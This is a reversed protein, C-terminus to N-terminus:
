NCILIDIQGQWIGFDTVIKEIVKVEIEANTEEIWTSYFIFFFSSENPKKLYVSYCESCQKGANPMKVRSLHTQLHKRFLTLNTQQSNCISLLRVSDNFLGTFYQM